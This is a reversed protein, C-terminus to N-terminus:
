VHARGIEFLRPIPIWESDDLGVGRANAFDINGNKVSYKRVLISNGTAGPVGAVDYSRDYNRGEPSDFVGGVQDIVVSENESHQRLYWCERGNWVDFTWHYGGIIEDTEDGNPEPVHFKLDAIEEWEEKTGRESYNDPDKLWQEPGFDNFVAITYSEGSQLIKEPLMFSRNPEPNWPTAWPRITGFEYESLQVPNEGMNTIEVYAENM